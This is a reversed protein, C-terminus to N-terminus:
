AGVVRTAHMEIFDQSAGLSFSVDYAVNAQTANVYLHISSSAINIGLKTLETYGVGYATNQKDNIFVGSRPYSVNIDLAKNRMLVIMDTTNAVVHSSPTGLKKVAFLMVGNELVLDTNGDGDIDSEYASMAAGSSILINGEQKRVGSSFLNTNELRIKIKNEAGSVVLRGSRVNVDLTRRAGPAEVFLQNIAADISKLTQEAENFAQFDQSEQVFPNITNLVLITSSVVIVIAVVGSILDGKM